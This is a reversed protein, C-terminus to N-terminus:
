AKRPAEGLPQRPQADTSSPRTFAVPGGGIRRYFEAEEEPTYPPEYYFGGKKDRKRVM